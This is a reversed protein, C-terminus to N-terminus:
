RSWTWTGGSSLRQSFLIGTPWAACIPSAQKLLNASRASVRKSREVSGPATSLLQDTIARLDCEHQALQQLLTLSHGHKEIATVVNQTKREIEPKRKRMYEVVGGLNGLAARLQRGFGGVAYDIVKLRLLDSQL